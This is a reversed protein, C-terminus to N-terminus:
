GCGGIVDSEHAQAERLAGWIGLAVLKVGNLASVRVIFRRVACSFFLNGSCRRSRLFSALVRTCRQM